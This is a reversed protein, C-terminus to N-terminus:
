RCRSWRLGLSWLTKERHWALRLKRLARWWERRTSALLSLPPKRREGILSHGEDDHRALEPLTHMIVCGHAGEDDMHDDVTQWFRDSSLLLAKAAAPDLVYAVASYGASRPRVIDLGSPLRRWHKVGPHRQSFLRVMIKTGAIASSLEGLKDTVDDRLRADDELILCPTEGAAVKAWAAKHALFCGVEGSTLDYGLLRRRLAHDYSAESEAPGELYIGPLFTADLGLGALHSRLLSGRRSGPLSLAIIQCSRMRISQSILGLSVCITFCAQLRGHGSMVRMM